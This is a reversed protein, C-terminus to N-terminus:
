LEFLQEGSEVQGPVVDWEGGILTQNDTTDDLALLDGEHSQASACLGNGSLVVANTAAEGMLHDTIILHIDHAVGSHLQALSVGTRLVADSELSQLITSAVGIGGRLGALQRQSVDTIRLFGGSHELLLPGVDWTRGVEGM